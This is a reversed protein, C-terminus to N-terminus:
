RVYEAIRYAAEIVDEHEWIRISTWGAAQLLQDTERDRARNDAVKNAWYDANAKAVTHHEPCGHWFCGDVFVAVQAKTFM